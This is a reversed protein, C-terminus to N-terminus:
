GRSTGWTEILEALESVKMLEEIWIEAFRSRLAPSLLNRSQHVSPPNIALYIRFHPHAHCINEEGDVVYGFDLLTNLYESLPSLNAEDILLWSGEEMARFLLGRRYYWKGSEEQMYGGLLEELGTDSSLNVYYLNTQKLRALYRILTTKGSAPNGVLLVPEDQLLAKLILFLTMKQTETPMIDAEGQPVFANGPSTKLQDILVMVDEWSPSLLATLELGRGRFGFFTDLLNVVAERESEDRIRGVYVCYIEQFLRKLFEEEILDEKLLLEVRRGLRIIDRLTFIYPDKEAKGIIRSDAQNQLTTHFRAIPLTLASPIQFLAGLIQSLEDESLENQYHIKFRTLFVESLRQRQSYSTPNGTAFLRFDPHPYMEKQEGNASYAIKGTILYDNLIEVVESSALNIEELVLWMGERAAKLFIGDQWVFRGERDPKIGGILEFKSTYPNIAYSLHRYGLIDALWRILFSKGTSTPGLLLVSHRLLYGFCLTELIHYCSSTIVCSPVDKRAIIRPLQLAGVRVITDDIQVLRAYAGSLTRRLPKELTENFSDIVKAFESQNRTILHSAIRIASRSAAQRVAWNKDKLQRRIKEIDVTGDNRVRADHVGLLAIAAAQHVFWNEDGLKKGLDELTIEGREYKLPWIRGLAFAAEQCVSRDVDSDRLREELVSLNVKKGRKILPPYIKGLAHVAAQRVSWSSAKLHKELTKLKEKGLIYGHHWVRGMAQAAAQRVSWDDDDLRERLVGLNVEIGQAILRSYVRGLAIAVTQRVMVNKDKSREELVNVNVPIGRTILAPYIHGLAEAEAQRVFWNKDYLKEELKEMDVAKGKQILAPYIRGLARVAAQRVSWHVDSLREQLGELTMMGNRYYLYWIRGVAEAATRCVAPDEDYLREELAGNLRTAGQKIILAHMRGLTSVAAHRISWSKNELKLEVEELAIEKVLEHPILRFCAEMGPLGVYADDSSSVLNKLLLFTQQVAPCATHVLLMDLMAALDRPITSVSVEEGPPKVYLDEMTFDPFVSAIESYKEYILERIREPQEQTDIFAYQLSKCFGEKDPYGARIWFGFLESARKLHRVNFLTNKQKQHLYLMALLQPVDRPILHAGSGGHIERKEGFHRYAVNEWFMERAILRDELLSSLVWPLEEVKEVEVAHTYRNKVETIGEGLGVGLVEIKEEFAEKQLEEFTKQTRNVNGEGDTVMIIWRMTDQPQEKLMETALALADADATSGGPIYLSVEEFLLRREHPTLNGGFGKHVVPSDSFGIVAYDVGISDLAEMFLLLGALAATRKPEDMSGSEDLALLIRHDRQSPVKRRLFVRLDKEEVPIGESLKRSVEMARRIDPKQGSPFYGAFHPRKNKSFHNELVGSLSQILSCIIRYVREYEGEKAEQERQIRRQKRILDRLTESATWSGKGVRSEYIEEKEQGGKGERSEAGRAKGERRSRSRETRSSLTDALTKADQELLRKAEEELEESTLEPVCKKEKLHFQGEKIAEALKRVSAKFLEEYEPLIKAKIMRAVEEATTFRERETARSGPHHDFIARFDSHTRELAELVEPNHLRRPLASYKWFYRVGFLYEMHPYLHLSHTNEHPFMDRYAAELYHRVGGFAHILWTDVRCDEFVNLLLRTSERAFFFAFIDRRENHRSIQRHGAEHASFGVIEEPSADVLMDVPFVIENREADYGWTEGPVVSLKVDEGLGTSIIKTLTVFRELVTHVEEKNLERHSLLEEIHVSVFGGGSYRRHGSRDDEM